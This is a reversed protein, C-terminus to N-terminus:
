QKPEWGGLAAELVAEAEELIQGGRSGLANSTPYEEIGYASLLAYAQEKTLTVTIRDDTM